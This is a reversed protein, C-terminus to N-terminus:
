AETRRWWRLGRRPREAGRRRVEVGGLYDFVAEVQEDAVSWIHIFPLPIVEWTGRPRARFRGGVM